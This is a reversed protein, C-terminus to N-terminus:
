SVFIDMDIHLERMKRYLTSRDIKLIRAAKAKNGGAKRLAIIIAETTQQDQETLPIHNRTRQDELVPLTRAHTTTSLNAVEEPLHETSITADQCLICAREISHELQRVNGPWDYLTLLTLAQESIGNIPKDLKNAYIHIFHNTLLPIDKKRDRLLPLHIEIIM